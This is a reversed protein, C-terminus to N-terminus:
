TAVTKNLEMKKRKGLRDQLLQRNLLTFNDNKKVLSHNNEGRHRRELLKLINRKLVPWNNLPSNRKIKQKCPTIHINNAPAIPASQGRGSQLPRIVQYQSSLVTNNDVTEWSLLLLTEGCFLRLGQDTNSTDERSLPGAKATYKTVKLYM